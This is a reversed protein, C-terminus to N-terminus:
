SPLVPLVKALALVSDQFDEKIRKLPQKLAKLPVQQENEHLFDRAAQEVTKM